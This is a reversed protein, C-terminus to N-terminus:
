LHTTEMRQACKRGASQRILTLRNIEDSRMLERIGSNVVENLPTQRVLIKINIVIYLNGAAFADSAPLMLLKGPSEPAQSFGVLMLEIIKESESVIVRMKRLIKFLPIKLKEVFPEPLDGREAEEGAAFVAVDILPRMVVAKIEGIGLKERIHNGPSM